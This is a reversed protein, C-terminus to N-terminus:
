VRILTFYSNGNLTYSFTGPFIQSVTLLLSFTGSTAGTNIIGSSFSDGSLTIVASTTYGTINTLQASITMSYLGTMAGSSFYCNLIFNSNPPLTISTTDPFSIDNSHQSNTPNIVALGDIVYSMGTLAAYVFSSGGNSAWSLNGSTDSSLVQGSVTPDVNFPNKMNPIVLQTADGSIINGITMKTINAPDVLFNGNDNAVAVNVDNGLIINNAGGDVINQLSNHGIVINDNVDNNATSGATSMSSNGVVINRQGSAIDLGTFNGIAINGYSSTNTPDSLCQNGYVLNYNSSSNLYTGSFNGVVCQNLGAVSTLAVMANNGIGVLLSDTFSNSINYLANPGISVTGTNSGQTSVNTIINNPFQVGNGGSPFGVQPSPGSSNAVAIQNTTGIVSTVDGDEATTWVLTTGSGPVSLVQNATGITAPLTYANNITLTDIEVSSALSISPTTTQNTVVFNGDGSVNTVTGATDTTWVLTTGSGPVSLVQNATGITSPLTYANNITLTDIEVSSALSISPTTTQNTVIFNGDGSVNTVTGAADTAWVCANGSAPMSLVQNATGAVTPLTYATGINVENVTIASELNVTVVSSGSIAINGDTNTLASIGGGGGSGWILSDNNLVLIQGNTGVTEPFSYSNGASGINLSEVTIETVGRQIMSIADIASM